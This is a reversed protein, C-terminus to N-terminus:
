LYWRSLGILKGEALRRRVEEAIIWHAAQEVSVGYLGTGVLSHLYHHLGVPIEITIEMTPVLKKRDTM